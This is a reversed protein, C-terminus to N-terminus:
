ECKFNLNNIVRTEKSKIAFKRLYLIYNAYDYLILSTGLNLLTTALDYPVLFGLLEPICCYLTVTCHAFCVRCLTFCSGELPDPPM